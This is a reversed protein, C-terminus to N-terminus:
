LRRGPPRQQQTAGLGDAARMRQECRQTLLGPKVPAVIGRQAQKWRLLAEFGLVKSFRLDVKPQCCLMFEQADPADQVRGLAEFRPETPRDSEADFFSAM